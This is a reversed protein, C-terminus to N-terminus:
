APKNKTKQKEFLPAYETNTEGYQDIIAKNIRIWDKNVM